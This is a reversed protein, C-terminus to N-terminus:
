HVWGASRCRARVLALTGCKGNIVYCAKLNKFARCLVVVCRFRCCLPADVRSRRRLRLRRNCEISSHIIHKFYDRFHCLHWLSHRKLPITNAASLPENTRQTKCQPPLSTKQLIIHTLFHAAVAVSAYHTITRIHAMKSFAACLDPLECAREGNLCTLRLVTSHQVTGQGRFGNQM